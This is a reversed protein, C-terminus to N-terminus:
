CHFCKGKKLRSSKPITKPIILSNKPLLILIFSCLFFSFTPCREKELMKKEKKCKKKKKKEHGRMKKEAWRKKSKKGIWKKIFKRLIFSIL